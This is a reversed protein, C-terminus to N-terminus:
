GLSVPRRSFCHCLVQLWVRHNGLVLHQYLPLGHFALFLIWILLTIFSLSICSFESLCPVTFVLSPCSYFYVLVYLNPPILPSKQPDSRDTFYFYLQSSLQLVSWTSHLIESRSPLVKQFQGFMPFFQLLIFFTQPIHSVMSCSSFQHLLLLFLIIAQYIFQHQFNALNKFSCPLAGTQQINCTSPHRVWLHSPDTGTDSLGFVCQWVHYYFIASNVKQESVRKLKHDM